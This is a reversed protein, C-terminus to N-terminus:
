VAGRTRRYLLLAGPLVVASWVLGCMALGGITVPQLLGRIALGALAASAFLFASPVVSQRLFRSQSIGMDPIILRLAVLGVTTLEAFGIVAVMGVVGWWWAAAIGLVAIMCVQLLLPLTMLNAKNTFLPVIMPLQVQASMVASVCFIGIVPLSYLEPEGTWFKLVLDSFPLLGGMGLAAIMSITAAGALVMSRMQPGHEPALFRSVEIGISRALQQCFQRVVGTLTRSATFTALSGPPLGPIVGILIVPLQLVALNAAAYGFNSLSGAVLTKMDDGRFWLPRFRLEPAFRRVLLKAPVIGLCITVILQVTALARLQGGFALVGVFAATQAVTSVVFILLEGLQNTRATLVNSLWTRFM